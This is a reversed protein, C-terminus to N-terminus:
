SPHIELEFEDVVPSPDPWDGGARPADTESHAGCGHNYAVVRGDDPSWQNVCVGFMSGLYGGLPVLFGCTECDESSARAGPSDAGRGQDIWRQAAAQLARRTPVRERELGLEVIAVQDVAASTWDSEPAAGTSRFGTELREDTPDFPLLDTAGVDGPALRDAWPVWVPALLAGEGPLLTVECVTVNKSRAIRSVTVTWRWGRYGPSTTAFYHSGLREAEQLYALHEGVDGLGSIEEAAEKAIDVAAALTADRRVKVPVQAQAAADTTTTTSGEAVDSETGLLDDLGLTGQLDSESM